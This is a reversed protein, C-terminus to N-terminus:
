KCCMRFEYRIPTANANTVKLMSRRVADHNILKMLKNNSITIKAVYRNPDYITTGQIIQSIREIVQVSDSLNSHPNETKYLYLAVLNIYTKILLDDEYIGEREIFRPEHFYLLSHDKITSNLIHTVAPGSDYLESHLTNFFQNHPDVTELMATFLGRICVRPNVNERKALSTIAETAKNHELSISYTNQQIKLSNLM